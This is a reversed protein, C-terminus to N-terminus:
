YQEGPRNPQLGSINGNDDAEPVFEAGNDSNGDTNGASEQAAANDEAGVYEVEQNSAPANDEYAYADQQQKDNATPDKAELTETPTNPVNPTSPNPNDVIIPTIPTPMNGGAEIQACGNKVLMTAVVNGSADHFDVQYITTTEGGSNEPGIACVLQGDNSLYYSYTRDGTAGRQTITAQEMATVFRDLDQNYLDQNSLYSQYRSNVNAPMELGDIGVDPQDGDEDIATIYQALAAKNNYATFILNESAEEPTNCYFAESVNNKSSVNDRMYNQAEDTGLKDAPVGYQNALQEVREVSLRLRDAAAKYDANVMEASEDDEATNAPAEEGAIAADLEKRYNSLDDGRVLLRAKELSSHDAQDANDEIAQNLDEVAKNLKEEHDALESQELESVPVAMLEEVAARKDDVAENARNIVEANKDKDKGAINSERVKSLAFGGVALSAVLAVGIIANRIRRHKKDSPDVDNDDNDDYDNDSIEKEEIEKEEKNKKSRNFVQDLIRRLTFQKTEDDDEPDIVAPEIPESELQEDEGKQKNRGLFAALRGIGKKTSKQKEEQAELENQLRNITESQSKVLDKLKQVEDLLQAHDSILQEIEKKGYGNRGSRKNANNEM